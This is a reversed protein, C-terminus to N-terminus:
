SIKVKKLSKALEPRSSQETSSPAVPSEHSLLDLALDPRSISLSLSYHKGWALDKRRLTAAKERQSDDLSISFFFFFFIPVKKVEKYPRRRLSRRSESEPGGEPANKNVQSEAPKVM